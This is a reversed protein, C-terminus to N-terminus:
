QIMGKQSFLFDENLKLSSKISFIKIAMIIADCVGSRPLLFFYSRKKLRDVFLFMLLTLFIAILVNYINLNLGAFRNEQKVQETRLSSSDFFTTAYVTDDACRRKSNNNDNFPQAEDSLAAQPGQLALHVLRKVQEAVNSNVVLFVGAIGGIKEVSLAGYLQEQAMFQGFARLASSQAQFFLM